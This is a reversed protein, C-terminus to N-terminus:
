GVNLKEAARKQNLDGIPSKRRDGGHEFNALKAAAMARQSESLHRRRLNLSVVYCLPDDGAYDEYRPAVGAQLCARFRNRGELIKGEHRVITERLGNTKIDQVLSEFEAGEMLPFMNALPHFEIAAGSADRTEPKVARKKSIAGLGAPRRMM